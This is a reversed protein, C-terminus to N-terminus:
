PGFTNEFNQSTTPRLIVGLAVLLLLWYVLLVLLLLLLVDQTAHESLVPSDHARLCRFRNKQRKQKNM